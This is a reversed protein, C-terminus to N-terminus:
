SESLEKSREKIIREAPFSDVSKAGSHLERYIELAIEFYRTFNREAEKLEQDTLTPYLDRFTIGTPKQQLHDTMAESYPHSALRLLCSGNGGFAAQAKTATGSRWRSPPLAIAPAYMVAFHLM